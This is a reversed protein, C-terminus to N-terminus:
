KQGLLLKRVRMLLIGLNNKGNGSRGGDGWFTDHNTHEKIEKSATFCLLEQLRQHASFKYLLALYMVDIKVKDWDKRKWMAVDNKRSYEYAERPTALNCIISEYPTGIFKQAQFYHESTKWIRGDKEFPAFEYFNTFEYFLKNSDYFLIVKPLPFLDIFLLIL